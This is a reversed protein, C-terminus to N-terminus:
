VHARGIEVDGEKITMSEITKSETAVESLDVLYDAWDPAVGSVRAVDPADNSQVAKSIKTTLDAYPVDTVEVKIGTEKEYKEALKSYANGESTDGSVFLRVTDAKDEKSGCAALGFLMGICASAFLLKKKM